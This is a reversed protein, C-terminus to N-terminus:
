GRVWSIDGSHSEIMQNARSYFPMRRSRGCAIDFGRCLNEIFFSLNPAVIDAGAEFLKEEARLNNGQGPRLIGVCIVQIGCEAANKKLPGLDTDSDGVMIVPGKEFGLEQMGRLLMDPAPKTKIGREINRTYILSQEALDKGLKKTFLASFGNEKLFGMADEEDRNTALCVPLLRRLLKIQRISVLSTNRAHIYRHRELDMLENKLEDISASRVSQVRNIAYPWLDRNGNNSPDGELSIRRLEEISSEIGNQALFERVVLENFDVANAMVGDVDLFVALPRKFVLIDPHTSSGTNYSRRLSIHDANEEPQRSFQGREKLTVYPWVADRCQFSNQALTSPSPVVSVQHMFGGPRGPREVESRRAAGSM